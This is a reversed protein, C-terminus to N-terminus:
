FWFEYRTWLPVIAHSSDGVAIKDKHTWPYCKMTVLTSTPNQFFRRNFKSLKSLTQFTRKLFLAVDGRDELSAFSNEGEFPM